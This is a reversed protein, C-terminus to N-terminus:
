LQNRNYFSFHCKFFNWLRQRFKFLPMRASFDNCPHTLFLRDGAKSLYLSAPIPSFSPKCQIVSGQSSMHLSLYWLLRFNM